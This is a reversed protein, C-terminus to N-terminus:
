VTMAPPPPGKHGPAPIPDQNTESLDQSSIVQAINSHRLIINNIFSSVWQVCVNYVYHVANTEFSNSSKCVSFFFFRFSNKAWGM